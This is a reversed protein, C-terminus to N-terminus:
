VTLTALNPHVCGTRNESCIIFIRQLWNPEWIISKLYMGYIWGIIEWIKKWAKGLFTHSSIQVFWSKGCRSRNLGVLGGRSKSRGGASFSRPHGTSTGVTTGVTESFISDLSIREAGYFFSIDFSCLSILASVLPFQQSNISQLININKKWTNKHFHDYIIRHLFRLSIWTLKFRNWRIHVYIYM